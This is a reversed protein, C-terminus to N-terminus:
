MLERGAGDRSVDVIMEREETRLPDKDEKEKKEKDEGYVLRGRRRVRGKKFRGKGRFFVEDNKKDRKGRRQWGEDM